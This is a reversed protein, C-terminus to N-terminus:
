GLLQVADVTTSYPDLDIVSHPLNSPENAQERSSPVPVSIKSEVEQESSTQAVTSLLKSFTSALWHAIISQDPDGVQLEEIPPVPM